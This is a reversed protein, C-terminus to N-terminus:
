CGSKYAIRSRKSAARSSKRKCFSVDCVDATFRYLRPPSAFVTHGAYKPIYSNRLLNTAFTFRNARRNYVAPWRITFVALPVTKNIGLTVNPLNFQLQRQKLPLFQRYGLTNDTSIHPTIVTFYNYKYLKYNRYDTLIILIEIIFLFM